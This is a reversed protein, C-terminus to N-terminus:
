ISEFAGRYKLRQLYLPKMRGWKTTIAKKENESFFLKKDTVVYGNAKLITILDPINNAIRPIYRKEFCNELVEMDIEKSSRLESAKDDVIDKPFLKAGGDFQDFYKESLKHDVRIIEYRVYPQSNFDEQSDVHISFARQADPRPLAQFGVINLRPSKSLLLQRLNITYLVIERNEDVIPEYVNTSENKECLAFFMATEKSRTVDIMYTGFEYHQSVGEMDIHFSKGDVQWALLEQIIPHSEIMMKYFEYKKILNVVYEIQTKSRLLSPLCKKYFQTQGRYLRPSFEPGPVLGFHNDDTQIVYLDNDSGSSVLGINNIWIHDDEFESQMLSSAYQDLTM